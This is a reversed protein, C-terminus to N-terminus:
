VGISFEHSQSRSRESMAATAVSIEHRLAGPEALNYLPSHDANTVLREAMAMGEPRVPRPDDLLGIMTEIADEAELVASTRVLVMRSRAMPGRHAEDIARRMAHALSRRNRASTLQRARLALELSSVPDAGDALARTLARRHLTVRFRARLRRARDASHAFVESQSVYPDAITPM